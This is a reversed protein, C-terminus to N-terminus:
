ESDRRLVGSQPVGKSPAVNTLFKALVKEMRSDYDPANKPLHPWAIRVSVGSDQIISFCDWVVYPTTGQMASVSSCHWGAVLKKEQANPPTSLLNKSFAERDQERRLFTSVISLNTSDRTGLDAANPIQFAFVAKEGTSKSAIVPWNGPVSFHIRDVVTFEVLDSSADLCGTVLILLLAIQKVSQWNMPMLICISTCKPFPGTAFWRYREGDRDTKTSTRGVNSPLHPAPNAV